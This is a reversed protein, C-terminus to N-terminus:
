RRLNAATGKLLIWVSLLGTLVLGLTAPLPIPRAADYVPTMFELRYNPNLASTLEFKFQFFANFELAGLEALYGANSRCGLACLSNLTTPDINIGFNIFALQNANTFRPLNTTQIYTGAPDDFFEDKEVIGMDAETIQLEVPYNINARLGVRLLFPVASTFGCSGGCFFGTPIDLTKPSFSVSTIKLLNSNIPLALCRNSLMFIMVGIILLIRRM